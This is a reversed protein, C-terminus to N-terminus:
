INKFIYLDNVEKYGLIFKKICFIINFLIMNVYVIIASIILM